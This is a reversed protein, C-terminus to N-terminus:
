PAKEECLLSDFVRDTQLLRRFEGEVVSPCARALVGCVARLRMMLEERESDDIESKKEVTTVWCRAVGDMITGTWHRMRSACTEILTELATLSNIQLRVSPTGLRLLCLPHVLQPALAKLYRAAGAGLGRILPPLAEVSATIVAPKRPAYLWITGIVGEGLLTCLLDFRSASGETTTLLITSLSASIALRILRPSEAHDFHGFCNNLAKFILGDIGTKRLIEQPARALLESVILVGKLKYLVQYDDLMIMIPPIVLHWLRSYDQAKIHRVCWSVLEPAAPDDKWTQTEFFDQSAMPGGAPRLLKRGTSMNLLPHPNTKFIPKVHQSLVEMLVAVDSEYVDQLIGAAQLRAKETTWAHELEFPATAVIIQAREAASFRTSQGQQVMIKLEELSRTMDEKWANLRAIVPADTIDEHHSAFEAPIKLAQTFKSFQTAPPNDTM